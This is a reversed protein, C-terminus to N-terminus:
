VKQCNGTAIEALRKLPVASDTYLLYDAMKPIHWNDFSGFGRCYVALKKKINLTM